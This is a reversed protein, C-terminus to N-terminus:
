DEDRDSPVPIARVETFPGALEEALRAMKPEVDFSVDEVGADRSSFTAFGEAMAERAYGLDGEALFEYSGLRLGLVAAAVRQQFADDDVKPRGTEWALEAEQVYLSRHEGPETPAWGRSPSWALIRPIAPSDAFSVGFYAWLWDYTGLECVGDAGIDVFRAGIPGPSHQADLTTVTLTDDCATVLVNLECCHVGGSSGGIVLTECGKMPVDEYEYVATPRAMWEWEALALAEGGNFDWRPSRVAHGFRVRTGWDVFVEGVFAECTSERPDCHRARPTPYGAFFDDPAVEDFLEQYDPEVGEIWGDEAYARDDPRENADYSLWRDAASGADADAEYEEEAYAGTDAGTDDLEGLLQGEVCAVGGVVLIGWV